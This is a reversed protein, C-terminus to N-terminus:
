QQEDDREQQRPREDKPSIRAPNVATDLTNNDIDPRAQSFVAVMEEHTLQILPELLESDINFEIDLINYCDDQKSPGCLSPFKKIEVIDEPILVIKVSSFKTPATFYVYGNELFYRLNNKTFKGGGLYKVQTPHIPDIVVSNDLNTISQIKHSSLDMMPRPIPHKTRYVNCGIPPICPCNETADVEVIEACPIVSYNWSSIKRKSRLMRSLLSARVTLMKNYIHRNSLRSDDSQVGKSNASQIRQILERITM